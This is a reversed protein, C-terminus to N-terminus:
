LVPFFRRAVFDDLAEDLELRFEMRRETKDIRGDQKFLVSQIRKQCDDPVLQRGKRFAERVCVVGFAFKLGFVDEPKEHRHM